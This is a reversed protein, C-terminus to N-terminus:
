ILAGGAFGFFSVFFSSAAFAISIGMVIMLLKRMGAGGEGFAMGLGTAIIAIVSLIKAVPGSISDLIKQLPGEWPMGSGAAFVEQPFVLLLFLLTYIIFLNQKWIININLYKM